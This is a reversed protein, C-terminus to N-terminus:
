QRSRRQGRGVLREEALGLAIRDALEVVRIEAGVTAEDAEEAMEVLRIGRPLDRPATRHVLELARNGFRLDNVLSAVPPAAVDITEEGAPARHAQKDKLAIPDEDLSVLVLSLGLLAEM